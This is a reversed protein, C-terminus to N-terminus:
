VIFSAEGDDPLSRALRWGFASLALTTLQDKLSHKTDALGFLQIVSSGWIFSARNLGRKLIMYISVLKNEAGRDARVRSPM